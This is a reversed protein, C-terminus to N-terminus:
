SASATQHFDCARIHKQGGGSPAIKSEYSDLSICSEHAPALCSQAPFFRRNAFQDEIKAPAIHNPLAREVNFVQPEPKVLAFM